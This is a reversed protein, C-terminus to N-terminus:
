ATASTPASFFARSREVDYLFNAGRQVWLPGKDDFLQEDRRMRAITVKNLGVRRALVSEKITWETQAKKGNLVARFAERLVTSSDAGQQRWLDQCQDAIGREEMYGVLKM